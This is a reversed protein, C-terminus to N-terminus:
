DLGQDTVLGSLLDIHSDIELGLAGAFAILLFTDDWGHGQEEPQPALCDLFVLQQVHQGMRERGRVMEFAVRGGLPHGGLLYPGQPHVPRMAEIYYEDIQPVSTYLASRDALGRAHFAYFPQAHGLHHALENLYLVTGGAGPVCFFPPQTGLA